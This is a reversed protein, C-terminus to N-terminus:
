DEKGKIKKGYREEKKIKKITFILSMKIQGTNGDWRMCIITNKNISM